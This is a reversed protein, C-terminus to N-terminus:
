PLEYVTVIISDELGVAKTATISTILYDDVYVVNNLADCVAGFCNQLDRRRRDSFTVELTMHCENAFPQADGMVEKARLTLEEEYERVKKDKYLRGTRTVKMLNKKSPVKGKMELRFMIKEKTRPANGYCFEQLTRLDCM